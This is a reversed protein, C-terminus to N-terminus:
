PVYWDRSRCSPWSCSQPSRIGESRECLLPAQNIARNEESRHQVPTLATNGERVSRVMRRVYQTYVSREDETGKDVEERGSQTQEERGSQEQRRKSFLGDADTGDEGKM